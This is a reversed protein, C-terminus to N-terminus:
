ETALLIIRFKQFHIDLGLSGMCGVFGLESLKRAPRFSLAPCAFVAFCLTLRCSDIWYDMLGAFGFESLKVCLLLSAFFLLFFLLCDWNM